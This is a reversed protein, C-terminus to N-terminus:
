GHTKFFWTSQLVSSSLKRRIEEALNNTSIWKVDYESSFYFYKGDPTIYSCYEYTPTNIRNGLNRASTWEGNTKIAYYLDGEGFSDDRNVSTFIILSEDPAIWPDHEM